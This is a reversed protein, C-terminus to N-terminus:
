ARRHPWPRLLKAAIFRGSQVVPEIRAAFNITSSIFCDKPQFPDPFRFVPGVHLGVRLGMDRPLGKEAWKVSRLFERLRLAFLGASRVTELSGDSRMAEFVCYLGDGWTNYDSPGIGEQRASRILQALPHLYYKVFAPLQSETLQNFKKVDAFLVARLEQPPEATDAPRSPQSSDGPKPTTTNFVAKIDSPRLSQLFEIPIGRTTAFNVMARTGGPADGSWGDWLVLLRVEEGALRGRMLALGVSVRNCLESAMANNAARTEALIVKTKAEGYLQDFRKLWYDSPAEPQFGTLCDAKFIEARYPLVVHIEGGRDLIQELFIIDGGCAMSAFGARADLADLKARIERTVANEASAPFRPQSRTPRDMMHGTFAVIGTFSNPKM